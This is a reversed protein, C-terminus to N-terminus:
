KSVAAFLTISNRGFCFRDPSFPGPNQPPWKRLQGTKKNTRKSDIKLHNAPSNVCSQCLVNFNLKKIKLALEDSYLM